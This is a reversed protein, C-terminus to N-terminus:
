RTTLALLDRIKTKDTIYSVRGLERGGKFAILTSQKTVNFAQWEAKQKDFNIRLILLKAYEPAGVTAKITNTQSACVPCWWANVEVLTPRGAKQAADFTARDFPKYEAAVAPASAGILAAVYSIATLARM